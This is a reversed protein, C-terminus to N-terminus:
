RNAIIVKRMGGAGHYKNIMDTQVVNQNLTKKPQINFPLFVFIKGKLLDIKEVKAEDSERFGIEAKTLFQKEKEFDSLTEEIRKKNLKSGKERSTKVTIEIDYGDLGQLEKFARSIPNDMSFLSPHKQIDGTKLNITRYIGKNKGRAFASKYCIPNLEVFTNEDEIFNNIYFEIGSPSLSYVNRQVMLVNIESDYICSIDEAIYENDKLGIDALEEVLEQTIAPVNTERMRTFHVVGYDTKPDTYIEDIRIKEQQYHIARQTKDIKKLNHMWNIFDFSETRLVKKVKKRKGKEEVMEFTSIKPTFFDFRVYRVKDM